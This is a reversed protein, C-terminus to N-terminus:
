IAESTPVTVVTYRSDGLDSLNKIVLFNGSLHGDETAIIVQSEGDETDTGEIAYVVESDEGENLISNLIQLQIEDIESDSVLNYEVKDMEDIDVNDLKDESTAEDNLFSDFENLENESPDAEMKNESEADGSFVLSIPEIFPTSSHLMGSEDVTVTPETKDIVKFDAEREKAPRAYIQIGIFPDETQSIDCTDCTEIQRPWVKCKWLGRGRPDCENIRSCTINEMSKAFEPNYMIFYQSDGIRIQNTAPPKWTALDPSVLDRIEYYLENPIPANVNFDEFKVEYWKSTAEPCVSAALNLLTSCTTFAESAKTAVPAEESSKTQERIKKDEYMQDIESMWEPRPGFEVTSDCPVEPDFSRIFEPMVKELVTANSVCDPDRKRFDFKCRFIQAKMYSPQLQKCDMRDIKSFLPQRWYLAYEMGSYNYFLFEKFIETITPNLMHPKYEKVDKSCSVSQSDLKSDLYDAIDLEESILNEELNDIATQIAQTVVEDVNESEEPVDSTSDKMEDQEVPDLVDGMRHFLGYYIESLKDRGVSKSTGGECPPIGESTEIGCVEDSYRTIKLMTRYVRGADFGCNLVM